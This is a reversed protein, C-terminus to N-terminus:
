QATDPTTNEPEPSAIIVKEPDDVVEIWTQGPSLNIPKGSTTHFTTLGTESSKEWTGQWVKGSSLYTAPGTGLTRLDLRNKEDGDIIHYDTYEIIINTPTIATGQDDRHSKGALLRMYTHTTADYQYEVEYDFSSFKITVTPADLVGQPPPGFTFRPSLFTDHWSDETQQDRIKSLNVFLNHPAPISTDRFLAPNSEGVDRLTPLTSIDTLAQPSGGAHIYTAGYEAIWSVYYSRASRVPGVRPLDASGFLALFRTIGGEALAEYVIDAQALGRMHPRSSTYNEIMVGTVRENRINSLPLGTLRSTTQYPPTVPSLPLTNVQTQSNWFTQEASATTTLPLPTDPTPSYTLITYTAVAIFLAALALATSQLHHAPYSFISSLSASTNKQQNNKQPNEGERPHRIQKKQKKELTKPAKTRPNKKPSPM